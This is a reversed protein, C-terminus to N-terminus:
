EPNSLGVVPVEWGARERPPGVRSVASLSGRLLVPAPKLTGWSEQSPELRTRSILASGRRPSWGSAAPM